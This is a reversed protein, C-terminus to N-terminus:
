GQDHETRRLRDVHEIVADVCIRFGEMEEEVSGGSGASAFSISNGVYVPM